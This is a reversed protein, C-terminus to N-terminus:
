AASSKPLEWAVQNICEADISESQAVAGAVLALDSLQVIRRAIGQSLEQIREVASDEFVPRDCGLRSLSWALFEGTQTIEWGPLDIQLEVRDLLSRSISGIAQSEVAFIVTLPFGMSALRNLDAEAAATGSEVDDVLLVTQLDERSAAQFYDCLDQWANTVGAEKRVGILRNALDLLLESGTMALMSTRLIRLNPTEASYSTNHSCYRLISSKGVGSPGVLSGVSRRNSILFDVRAIAEEVTVGRFLIQTNDGAYPPGELNWYRWYTM